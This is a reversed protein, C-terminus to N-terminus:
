SKYQALIIVNTEQERRETPAPLRKKKDARQGYYRDMNQYVENLDDQAIGLYRRTVHYNSHQYIEMIVTPSAGNKWAHYGFTKRLSHPSVRTSLGLDGGASSLIRYAQVRGIAKGKRGLFLPEKPYKAVKMEKLAKMLSDNIYVIKHKGTKNETLRFSTRFRKNMYDYVDFWELKLIDSIRLATHAAFSALLYDRQIGRLKFYNLFAKVDNPDRIPVTFAM